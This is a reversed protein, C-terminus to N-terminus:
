RGPKKAVVTVPGETPHFWYETFGAEKLWREVTKRSNPIDYAPALADFTDHIGYERLQEKSFMPFARRYNYFPILHYNIQRTLKNRDLVATVAQLFPAATTILGHLKQQDMRTTFPRLWYKWQLMTRFNKRYSHMFVTGGPKVYRVMERFAAAPDPTHQIVRHCYVIDYSEPALPLNMISAQILNLRENPYNNDRCFDVGGSIDVSTVHAGLDLLVQTDPGAGCGCELLTQGNLFEASWRTRHLITDRQITTGNFKDMQLRAHKMRQFAFSDAYNSEPVFRPIFGSIPYGQSCSVCTLAGREIEANRESAQNLTLEGHDAPCRLVKLLSSKM